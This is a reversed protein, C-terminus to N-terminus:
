QDSLQMIRAGNDLLESLSPNRKFFVILIFSSVSVDVEHDPEAESGSVSGTGNARVPSVDRSESRALAGAFDGFGRKPFIGGPNRRRRITKEISGTHYLRRTHRRFSSGCNRREATCIVKASRHTHIPISNWRKTRHPIDSPVSDNKERGGPTSPNRGILAKILKFYQICDPIMLVM